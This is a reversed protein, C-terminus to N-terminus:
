NMPDSKESTPYRRLKIKFFDKDSKDDQKIKDPPTTPPEVQFQVVGANWKMQHLVKKITRTDMKREGECSSQKASIGSKTDQVDHWIRHNFRHSLTM